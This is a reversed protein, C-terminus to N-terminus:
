FKMIIHNVAQSDGTIKFEHLDAIGVYEGTKMQLPSLGNKKFLGGTKVRLERNVAILLLFVLILFLEEEALDAPMGYGGILCLDIDLAVVPVGKHVGRPYFIGDATKGRRVATILGPDGSDLIGPERSVPPAVGEAGFAPAVQAPAVLCGVATEIPKNKLIQNNRSPLKPNWTGLEGITLFSTAEM